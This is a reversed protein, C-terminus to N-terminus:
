PAAGAVASGSAVAIVRGEADVVEANAVATRRGGHVPERWPGDPAEDPEGADDALHPHDVGSM